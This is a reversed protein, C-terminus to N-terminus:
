SNKLKENMEVDRGFLYDLEINYYDAIKLITQLEPIRRGTEWNNYTGQSVNLDKAINEQTYGKLLRMERLRHKLIETYM